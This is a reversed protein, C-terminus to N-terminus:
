NALGLIDWTMGPLELQNKQLAQNINELARTSPM